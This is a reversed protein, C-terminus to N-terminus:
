WALLRRILNYCIVNNISISFGNGIRIIILLIIRQDLSKTVIPGRGGGGDGYAKVRQIKVTMVRNTYVDIAFFKPPSTDDDLEVSKSSPRNSNSPAAGYCADEGVDGTDLVWLLRGRDDLFADVVNVIRHRRCQGGDGTGTNGGHCDNAATDHVPVSTRNEAATERSHETADTGPTEERDLPRLLGATDVFSRWHPFPHVVPYLNNVGHRLNVFGLSFQPEDSCCRRCSDGTPMVLVAATGGRIMQLRTVTNPMAASRCRSCGGTGNGDRRETRGVPPWRSALEGTNILWKVRTRVSGSYPVVTAAQLVAAAAVLFVPAYKTPRLLM